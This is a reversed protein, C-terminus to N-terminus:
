LVALPNLASTLLVVPLLLVAIPDTALTDAPSKFLAVAIPAPAITSALLLILSPLSATVSTSVAPYMFPNVPRQMPRSQRLAHGLPSIVDTFAPVPKLPM